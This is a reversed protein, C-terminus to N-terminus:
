RSVQPAFGSFALASWFVALPPVFLRNVIVYSGEEVPNLPFL